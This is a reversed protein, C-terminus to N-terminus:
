SAAVTSDQAGGLASCAEAVVTVALWAVARATVVEATATAVEEMATAEMAATAAATAVGVMRAM